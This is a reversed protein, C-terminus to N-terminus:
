YRTLGGRVEKDDEGGAAREKEATAIPAVALRTPEGVADTLPPHTPPGLLATVVDTSKM